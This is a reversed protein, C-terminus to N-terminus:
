ESHCPVVLLTICSWQCLLHYQRLFSMVQCVTIPQRQLLASGLQWIALLKGSPLSLCTWHIGVCDWFLSVAAHSNRSLFYLIYELIFWYLASSLEFGRALISPTLVLIDDLYIIVHFGRKHCLFLICKTLGFPFVEVSM